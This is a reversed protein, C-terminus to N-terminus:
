RGLGEDHTGHVDKNGRELLFFYGVGITLRWGQCVDKNM